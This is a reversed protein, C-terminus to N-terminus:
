PRGDAEILVHAPTVDRVVGPISAFVRAGLAGKPVEGILDGTAVREGPRVTAAAPVGIHQALPIRVRAPHVAAEVLPAAHDYESLGLRLTVRGVPTKRDAYAAPVPRQTETTLKFARQQLDKKRPQIIRRPSLNMPCALLDCVGCECCLLEDLARTEEVGTSWAGWRMVMHPRIQHGLLYRPCFDTCLQCEDCMARARILMHDDALFNRRILGHRRPLVIIGNTTKTVPTEPDDQRRGMMPGGDIFLYDPVTAGGALAVADGFSMGTPLRVTMPNRVAGTITVWKHTVPIGQLADYANVLTQVNNNVVGVALPLGGQPIVRGTLEYTLLFEDGAPYFDGLLHLALRTDGTPRIADKFAATGDHYKEKIGVIGRRAGVVEMLTRWAKVLKDADRCIVQRDVRLLPECEAANVLYYEVQTKLKAHLPFGAGGAGVVGAAQIREIVDM